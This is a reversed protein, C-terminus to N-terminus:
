DNKSEEYRRLWDIYFQNKLMDVGFFNSLIRSAALQSSYPSMGEDQMPVALNCHWSWAYDPDNQIAEKLEEFSSAISM